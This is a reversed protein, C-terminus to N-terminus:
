YNRNRIKNILLLIAFLPNYYKRVEYFITEEAGFQRYHNAVGRIMSGEFDFAVGQKRAFKMTELALLASAGSAKYTEDYCPILYYLQKSDWVVFAAALLNEDADRIAIIQGCQERMAKQYMVLFFERTYSIAKKRVAMCHTHFQYFDESSLSFDVHLALAKQLQRKKNKSFRDIVANMDSLDEIRYTIHKKISFGRKRMLAPLPSHLPYHQYYYWLGLAKLQQAIDVSIQEIKEQNDRIDARIWAGAIQTQQPMLVYQIGYRKRLLYPLAAIITGDSDRCLLVEWRKGACVANLWWPRMFIPMDSQESCWVAYAEKNNM